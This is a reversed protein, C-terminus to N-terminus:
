PFNGRAHTLQISVNPADYNMLFPQVTNSGTVEHSQRKLTCVKAGEESKAQSILGTLSLTMSSMM